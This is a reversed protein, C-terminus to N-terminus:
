GGQRHRVRYVACAAHFAGGRVRIAPHEQGVPRKCILCEDLRQRFRPRSADAPEPLGAGAGARDDVAM